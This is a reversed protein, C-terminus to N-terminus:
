AMGAVAGCALFLCAEGLHAVAGRLQFDLYLELEEVLGAHHCAGEDAAGVVDEFVAVEGGEEDVLCCLGEFGGAPGSYELAVADDEAAVVLLEGGGDFAGLGGVASQLPGEHLLHCLFLGRAERQEGDLVAHVAVDHCEGGAPEVVALEDGGGFHGVALDRREVGRQHPNVGGEAAEALFLAAGEAAGVGFLCAEEDVGEAVIDLHYAEFAYLVVADVEADDGGVFGLHAEDALEELQLLEEAGQAVLYRDVADIAELSLLAVDDDDAHHAVVLLAGDAEEAVEAAHVDGEGAGAHFEDYEAVGFCEGLMGEVVLEDVVEAGVAVVEEEGGGIFGGGAGGM